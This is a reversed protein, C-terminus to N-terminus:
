LDNLWGENDYNDSSYDKNIKNKLENYKEIYWDSKKMDIDGGKYPARKRYKWANLKCFSMTEEIGFLLIMEDICEMGSNTYHYPHNVADYHEGEPVNDSSDSNSNDKFHEADCMGDSYKEIPVYFSCHECDGDCELEYDESMKDVGDDAHEDNNVSSDDDDDQNGYMEEMEWLADYVSEISFPMMLDFVEEIENPKRM